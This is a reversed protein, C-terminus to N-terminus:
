QRALRGTCLAQRTRSHEWTLQDVPQCQITLVSPMMVHGDKHRVVAGWWPISGHHDIDRDSVDIVVPWEEWLTERSLFKVDLDTFGSQLSSKKVTM